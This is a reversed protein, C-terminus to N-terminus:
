ARVAQVAVAAVDGLYLDLVELGVEDGDEGTEVGVKGAMKPVLQEWPGFELVGVTEAASCVTRPILLDVFLREVYCVLRGDCCICVVEYGSIVRNHHIAEGLQRIVPLGQVG